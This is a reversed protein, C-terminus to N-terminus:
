TAPAFSSAPLRAAFALLKLRSACRKVDHRAPPFNLCATSSSKCAPLLAPTLPVGAKKMLPMKRLPACGALAKSFIM